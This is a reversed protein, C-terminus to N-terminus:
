STSRNSSPQCGKVRSPSQDLLFFCLSFTTRTSIWYCDILFFFLTFTTPTSIWYCDILFFFLSFTTRTSIWYCDILFFFLSFTTRTSIRIKIQRYCIWLAYCPPYCANRKVAFNLYSFLNVRMIRSFLQCILRLCRVTTANCVDIVCRSDTSQQVHCLHAYHWTSYLEDTLRM